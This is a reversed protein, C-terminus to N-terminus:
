CGALLVWTLDNSAADVAALGQQAVLGDIFSADVDADLHGRLCADVFSRMMLTLCHPVGDNAEDPLPLEEWAPRRPSSIKLTDWKGRSLSAKLAAEQGIVELFGNETFPPTARSIFWQGRTGNIFRFWAAAIDDTEIATPAATLYHPRTRPLHCVFGTTTEIPGLVFSAADFLHVGLEYLIGGGAVSADQRWSVQWEPLLANWGDYQVRLYHPAGVEGRAVRRRLERLAYGYRFTFGVQHVKGSREAAELMRRADAVSTALPKECFVHKGYRFATCAQDAHLANPTAITVADVDDRRCLETFDTHVEPVGLRDAIVRVRDYDSGCLAVVEAQRHSQLGPVHCNQAFEGSGIVGVRLKRNQEV